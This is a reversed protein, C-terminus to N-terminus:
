LMKALINQKYEENMELESKKDGGNPHKGEKVRSLKLQLIAIEKELKEIDAKQNKLAEENAGEFAENLKSMIFAKSKENNLNFLQYEQYGTAFCNGGGQYNINLASMSKPSVENIGTLRKDTTFLHETTLQVKQVFNNVFTKFHYPNNWLKLNNLCAVKDGVEFNKM